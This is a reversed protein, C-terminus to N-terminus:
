ILGEKQALWVPISITYTVGPKPVQVGGQSDRILTESKPLWFRGTGDTWVTSKWEHKFQHCELAFEMREAPQKKRDYRKYGAMIM